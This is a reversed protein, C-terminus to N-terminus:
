ANEDSNNFTVGGTSVKIHFHLLIIFKMLKM